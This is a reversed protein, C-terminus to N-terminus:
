DVYYTIYYYKIDSHDLKFLLDTRPIQYIKITINTYNNCM